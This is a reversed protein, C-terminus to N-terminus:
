LRDHPDRDDAGDDQEIAFSFWSATLDASRPEGAILICGNSGAVKVLFYTREASDVDIRYRDQGGDASWKGRSKVKKNAGEVGSAEYLAEGNVLLSLRKTGDLSATETCSELDAWGPADPPRPETTRPHFIWYALAAMVCGWFARLIFSPRSAETREPSVFLVPLNVKPEAREPHREPTIPSDEGETEKM